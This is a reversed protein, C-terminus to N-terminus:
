HLFICNIYNVTKLKTYYETQKKKDFGNLSNELPLIIKKEFLNLVHREIHM